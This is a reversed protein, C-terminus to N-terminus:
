ELTELRIVQGAGLRIARGQFANHFARIANDGTCHSAGVYKVGLSQLAQIIDAIEADNKDRLHFGGLVLFIEKSLLTKAQKVIDIIGPHACGTIVIL